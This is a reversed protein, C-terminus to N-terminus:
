LSQSASPANSQASASSLSPSPAPAPTPPPATTAPPTVTQPETVAAPAAPTSAKMHEPPKVTMEPEPGPERSPSIDHVVGGRTEVMQTQKAPSLAKGFPYISLLVLAAGGIIALPSGVAFLFGGGVCVGVAGLFWLGRKLLTPTTKSKPPPIDISDTTSDAM